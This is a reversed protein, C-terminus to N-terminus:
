SEEENVGHSANVMTVKGDSDHILLYPPDRDPKGNEHISVWTAPHEDCYWTKGDRGEHWGAEAGDAIAQDPSAWAYFDSQDQACAGCGPWDCILRYMAVEEIM